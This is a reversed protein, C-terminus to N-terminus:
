SQTSAPLGMPAGLDATSTWLRTGCHGILRSGPPRLRRLWAYYGSPSVGLLSCMRRVSHSAQNAKM